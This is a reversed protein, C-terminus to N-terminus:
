RRRTRYVVFRRGMKGRHTVRRVVKRRRIGQGYRARRTYGRAIRRRSGSRRTWHHGRRAAPRAVTPARAAPVNQTLLTPRLRGAQDAAVNVRVRSIAASVEKDGQGLSSFLGAFATKYFAGRYPGYSELISLANLIGHRNKRHRQTLDILQMLVPPNTRGIALFAAYAADSVKPDQEFVLQVIKTQSQNAIQKQRQAEAYNKEAETRALDAIQRLNKVEAGSAMAIARQREAEAAKAKVLLAQKRAAEAARDAIARLNRAETETQAARQESARVVEQQREIQGAYVTAIYTQKGAVWTAGAAVLGAGGLAAALRQLIKGTKDREELRRKRESVAQRELEELRRRENAAQRRQLEEERAQESAEIFAMALEFDAVSGYRAAWVPSPLERNKWALVALDPMDNWLTAEGAQWQRATQRLQQYIAASKAETEAWHNLRQWQRLLGEHAIELATDPGLPVDAPPLLLGREPQRFPEVISAIVDPSVGAVGAVEGLRAPRRTCGVAGRETLRRFLIEAVHQEAPNLAAFAAEAHQSFSETM